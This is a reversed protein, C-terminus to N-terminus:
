SKDLVMFATYSIDGIGVGTGDGTGTGTRIRDPDGDQERKGAQRDRGPQGLRDKGGPGQDRIGLSPTAM